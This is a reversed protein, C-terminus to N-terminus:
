APAHQALGLIRERAVLLTETRRHGATGRTLLHRAHRIVRGPLDILTFRVAKMRWSDRPLLAKMAANQDLALLMISCWAANVGLDQSPMQGSALDSKMMAHAGECKGRRERLWQIVEDGQPDLRERVMSFLEPAQEPGLDITKFPLASSSEMRPLGLQRLAERLALVRYQRESRPAGALLCWPVSRFGARHHGLLGRGGPGRPFPSCPTARHVGRAV